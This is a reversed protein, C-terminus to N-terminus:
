FDRPWHSEITRAKLDVEGVHVHVFPILSYIPKGKEDTRDQYQTSGDLTQQRVVLIPHAPNDQIAEVVGLHAQEGEVDTTVLCGILDVWYYEDTDLAPFTARSVLVTKGKLAQAQDRDNLGRVCALWTSGHAKAWVLDVPEALQNAQTQAPTRLWWRKTAGLAQSDSSFPQVKIWGKIGHAGLVHGLEILDDPVAHATSTTQATDTVSISNV